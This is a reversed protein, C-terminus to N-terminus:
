SGGAELRRIRQWVKGPVPLVTLRPIRVLEWDALEPLAALERRSVPRRLSRRAALDVVVDREESGEPDPYADGVARAIGVIRCKSGSHYLLVDDGDRVRALHRRALPHRVGNWVVPGAAEVLDDWGFQRPDTKMLWKAM